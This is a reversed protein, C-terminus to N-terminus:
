LRRTIAVHTGTPPYETVDYISYRVSSDITVNEGSTNIATVM